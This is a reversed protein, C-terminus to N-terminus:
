GRWHEFDLRANLAYGTCCGDSSVTALAVRVAALLAASVPPDGGIRVMLPATAASVVHQQQTASSGHEAAAAAPAAPTRSSSSNSPSSSLLGLQQLTTRQWQKLGDVARGGPPLEGGVFQYIAAQVSFAVSAIVVSM